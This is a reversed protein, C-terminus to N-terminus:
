SARVRAILRWEAHGQEDEVGLFTGREGPALTVHSARGLPAFPLCVILSETKSGLDIRPLKRNDRDVPLRLPLTVTTPSGLSVDVAIAINEIELETKM